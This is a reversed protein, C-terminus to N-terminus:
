EDWPNIVQIGCGEFDATNRSSLAARNSRAIAAIMADMQSIPRGTANRVAVISAFLRAAQEDFPLIRGEFQEAFMNEVAALLRTRRRGAPLAEVGYLVEAM